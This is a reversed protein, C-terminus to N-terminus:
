NKNLLEADFIYSWSFVGVVVIARKDFFYNSARICAKLVLAKSGEMCLCVYVSKVQCLKLM